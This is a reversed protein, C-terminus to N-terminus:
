RKRGNMYSRLQFPFDTQIIHYGKDLLWGWGEDMHGAVSIDDNHGAALVTKYNYVIANVWAILGKKAMSAVYEEQAVPAEETKFLVEAGVYRIGSKVLTESHLDEERTILMFPIEPALDKLTKVVTDSYSSKVLVQDMMDHRRLVRCIAEPNDWFKDINIYCKDKLFDLAEDLTMLPYETRVMDYNLFCLERIEAATMQYLRKDLGLFVREMGPHFIFLEGDASNSVDLEIMDAGQALAAEFAIQTNGPINACSLGRHATILTQNLAQEQLQFKM